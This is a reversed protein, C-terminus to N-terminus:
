ISLSMSPFKLRQLRTKDFPPNIVVCDSKLRTCYMDQSDPEALVVTWLCFFPRYFKLLSAVSNRSLERFGVMVEIVATENPHPPVSPNASQLGVKHVENYGLLLLLGTLVNWYSNIRM